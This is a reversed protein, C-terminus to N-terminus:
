GSAIRGTSRLSGAAGQAAIRARVADVEPGVLKLDGFARADWTWRGFDPHLVVPRGGNEFCARDGSNLYSEAPLGEAMMIEHSNLEVHFYEVEPMRVQRITHGNALIKIPILVGEAYIAHQPSLYLDRAPLGPGFASAQVCIPWAKHPESHRRCNVRRRGIWKIAREDGRATMVLDSPRLDEIAQEGGPVALRTGRRYCVPSLAIEARTDGTGTQLLTASYGAAALAIAETSGGTTIDLTSGSVVADSATQGVALGLDLTTGGTLAITGGFTQDLLLVGPGSMGTQSPTADLSGTALANLELTSGGRVEISGISSLGLADITLPGLGYDGGDALVVGGIILGADPPVISGFSRVIFTGGGGITGDSLINAATITSGQAGALVGAVDAIGDLLTLYGPGSGGFTASGGVFVDSGAQITMGAIEDSQGGSIIAPITNGNIIAEDGAGPIIGQNWNSSVNWDSSVSGTFTFTSGSMLSKRDPLFSVPSRGDNGRLRPQGTINRQALRMGPSDSM